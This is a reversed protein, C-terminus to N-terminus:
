SSRLRLKTIKSAVLFVLYMELMLRVIGVSMQVVTGSQLYLFFRPLLLMGLVSPICAHSSNALPLVFVDCLPFVMLLLVSFVVPSYWGFLLFADSMFSGTLRSKINRGSYFGFLLDASSLQNVEEKASASFGFFRLAPEPLISVFRISQFSSYDDKQQDTLANAIFLTNDIMKIASLRNVFENGYYDEKWWSRSSYKNIIESGKTTSNLTLSVLEAPNLIKRYTRAILMASNIQSLLSFVIFLSIGLLAFRRLTYRYGLAFWIYFVSLIAILIPFAFANRSNYYIGLGISLIFFITPIIWSIRPLPKETKNARSHILGLFYAALAANGLNSFAGIIKGIAGGVNSGLFLALVGFLSILVAKYNNLRLANAPTTILRLRDRFKHIFQSKTYLWHSLLACSNFVFIMGVTFSPANLGEVLSQGILTRGLLPLACLASFSGFLIIFSNPFYSITLRQFYKLSLFCSVFLFFTATLNVFSSNIATVQALALLLLFVIVSNYSFDKKIFAPNPSSSRM